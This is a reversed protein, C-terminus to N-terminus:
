MVLKQQIISKEFYNNERNETERKAMLHYSISDLSNGLFLGKQYRYSYSLSLSPLFLTYLSLSPFSSLEHM